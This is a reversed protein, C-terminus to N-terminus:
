TSTFASGESAKEGNGTLSSSETKAAGGSRGTLLDYSVGIQHLIAVLFYFLTLYMVCKATDSIPISAGLAPPTDMSYLGFAVVAFGAYLAADAAYQLLTLAAAAAPMARQAISCFTLAFVCCTSVVMADKCWWQPLGYQEPDGRTIAIARMRTSILIEHLAYTQGTLDQASSVLFLSTWIVFYLITVSIVCKMTMSVPPIPQAHEHVHALEKGWVTM